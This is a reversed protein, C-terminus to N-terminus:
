EFTWIGPETPQRILLTWLKQPMVVLAALASMLPTSSSVLATSARPKAPGPELTKM